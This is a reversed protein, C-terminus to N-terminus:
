FAPSEDKNSAPLMSSLTAAPTATEAEAKAEPETARAVIQNDRASVMSIVGRKEVPTFTYDGIASSFGREVEQASDLASVLNCAEAASGCLYHAYGITVVHKMRNNPKINKTAIM